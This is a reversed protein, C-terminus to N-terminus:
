GTEEQRQLDAVLNEVLTIASLVSAAAFGISVNTEPYTERHQAFSGVSQLHDVLLSTTRTVYVTLRPVRDTGTAYRLVGCQPGSGHPLKGGERVNRIEVGGRQWKEIWDLPITGDPPLEADWILALARDTISRIWILAHMPDPQLDRVSKRVFERLDRDVEHGAIQALRLELM